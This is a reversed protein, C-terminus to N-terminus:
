PQETASSVMAEFAATARERVGGDERVLFLAAAGLREATDFGEEPGLVLLGTALGDARMCSPDLVTVSGLAHRVPEGTRPDLTHGYRVGDQEFFNRYDGSTAVAVDRAPLVRHVSRRGPRPEEVGVRWVSGDARTGRARLEGGIEVLYGEIGAEDLLRAVEDVAYGKAIASLDIALDPAGKRLAPPELRAEIKDPGTRARAAALAEPDPVERDGSKGFGWLEVLPGVTIDLAGSTVEGLRLAAAVVRATEESVGFWDDAPARAFRSVESDELYTSMRENIQALRDDVATELAGADFPAGPDAAPLRAIKVAYRTGMVPGGFAHEVAPRKACGSVALLAAAVVTCGARVATM